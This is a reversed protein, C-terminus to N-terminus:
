LVVAVDPPAMEGTYSIYLDKEPTRVKMVTEHVEDRDKSHCLLVGKRPIDGQDTEVVEILLWEDVYLQEFVRIDQVEDM